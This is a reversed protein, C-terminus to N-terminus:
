RPADPGPQEWLLEALLQSEARLWNEEDSGSGPGLSLLYAREAILEPTVPRPLEEFPLGIPVVPATGTARRPPAAGSEERAGARGASRRTGGM